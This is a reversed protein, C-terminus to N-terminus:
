IRRKLEEIYYDIAEKPTQVAGIPILYEGGMIYSFAEKDQGLGSNIVPGGIATVEFTTETKSFWRKFRTLFVKEKVVFMIDSAVEAQEGLKQNFEVSEWGIRYPVSVSRTIVQSEKKSVIEFVEKDGKFIEEWPEYYNFGRNRSPEYDHQFYRWSFHVWHKDIRVGTTYTFNRRVLARYCKAYHASKYELELGINFLYPVGIFLSRETENPDNYYKAIFCNNSKSFLEISIKRTAFRINEPPLLDSKEKKSLSRGLDSELNKQETERKEDFYKFWSKKIAM